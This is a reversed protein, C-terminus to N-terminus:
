SAALALVHLDGAAAHGAPVGLLPSRTTAPQLEDGELGLWRQLPYHHWSRGAFDADLFYDGNTLIDLGAREQDSIM